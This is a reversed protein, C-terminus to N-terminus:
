MLGMANKNIVWLKIVIEVGFDLGENDLSLIFDAGEGYICRFLM